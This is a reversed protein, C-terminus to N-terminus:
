NAPCRGVDVATPNWSICTMDAPTTRRALGHELRLILERQWPDLGTAVDEGKQV